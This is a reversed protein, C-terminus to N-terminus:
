ERSLPFGSTQLWARWKFDLVFLLWRIGKERKGEGTMGAFDPIWIAAALGAAQFWAGLAALPDEEGKGEGTMGAFDPIWLIAALNAM